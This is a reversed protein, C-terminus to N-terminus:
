RRRRVMVGALGLGLFALTAPEPVLTFQAAGAAVRNTPDATNNLSIHGGYIGVKYMTGATMQVAPLVTNWVEPMNFYMNATTRELVDSPGNLNGWSDADGGKDAGTYLVVAADKQGATSPWALDIQYAGTETPTFAFVAMRSPGFYVSTGSYRSGINPTCDPANVNGSSNAWGGTEHYNAFNLGGSRSQVIFGAQAVSVIALCSTLVAFKKM